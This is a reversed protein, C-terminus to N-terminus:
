TECTIEACVLERMRNVMRQQLARAEPNAFSWNQLESRHDPYSGPGANLVTETERRDRSRALVLAWVHRAPQDFERLVQDHAARWRQPVGNAPIFINQPLPREALRAIARNIDRESPGRVARDPDGRESDDAIRFRLTFDVTAGQPGESPSLRARRSGAIAADALGLEGPTESIARCGTLLGPSTVDCRLHVRGELGLAEALLPVIVVPQRLWQPPSSEQASATAESGCLVAVLAFLRVLSKLM